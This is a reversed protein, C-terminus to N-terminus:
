GDATGPQASLSTPSASPHLHCAAVHGPRAEVIRPETDECVPGIFRHCRPHFPCGTPPHLPSPVQGKLRIPESRETLRPVAHLLAETYPHLPNSFLQETPAYEVSKGLYMVMVHQSLHRVVSLDHTILLYALGRERQLEQLLNIIQAQVSVDLSSVPEDAIILKPDLILARAIGVRQAQGGSLQYPYRDRHLRPELGVSHLVDDVRERLNGNIGHVRLPKEVISGITRRPNLSALPDQFIMQIDRRLPRLESEKLRTIDRGDFVIRGGTPEYLRAITRALTTKGCGSEGVVALTTGARVDFTVGDVARLVSAKGLLRELGGGVTFHKTLDEVHLTMRPQTGKQHM